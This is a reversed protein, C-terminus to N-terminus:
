FGHRRLISIARAATAYADHSHRSLEVAVPGAFRMARLEDCIAVWDLDGEGFFLHEHVGKRADDAHVMALRSAYRSLHSHYPASETVALHGLDITVALDARELVTLFSDFRQLSDIFMGPEPEFCVRVARSRAHDLVPILRTALARLRTEDDAGSEEIRGSWLSVLPAGVREALDILRQYFQQRREFGNDSLLSPHHKRRPDLLFRSGSEITIGLKRRECHAAFRDIAVGESTFPDLHHVDPTLAIGDYGLDALIDVVDALGHHAFGNTNYYLRM